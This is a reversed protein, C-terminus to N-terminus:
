FANYFYSIRCSEYSNQVIFSFSNQIESKNQELFRNCDNCFVIHIGNSSDNNNIHIFLRGSNLDTKKSASEFFKIKEYVLM